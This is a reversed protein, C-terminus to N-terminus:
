QLEDELEIVSPDQGGSDRQRGSCTGQTQVQVQVDTELKIGTDQAPNQEAQLDMSRRLAKDEDFQVDRSVIIRKLVPIYVKYAKSTESYGVLLGKEGSPDMKKRNDAHVHCIFLDM